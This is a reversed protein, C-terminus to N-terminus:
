YLYRFTRRLNIKCSNVRPRMITLDDRLAKLFSEIEDVSYGKKSAEERFAAIVNGLDRNVSVLQSFRTRPIGQLLGTVYNNHYTALAHYKPLVDFRKRKKVERITSLLDEKHREVIGLINIDAKSGPKIEDLQTQIDLQTQLSLYDLYCLGTNDRILYAAFAKDRTDKSIRKLISSDVSIRPWGGSKEIEYANLMAPGFIVDESAFHKGATIAGRLFFHKHALNIQTLAAIHSMFMFANDTVEPYSFVVCDSFAQATVQRKLKEKSKEAISNAISNIRELLDQIEDEKRKGTETERIANSLGLVDLFVVISETYM